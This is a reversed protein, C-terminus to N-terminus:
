NECNTKFRVASTQRLLEFGENLAVSHSPANDAWCHWVPTDGNMLCRRVSAAAVARALGRRRYEPATALGLAHAQGPGCIAPAVFVTISLSAIAQDTDDIVVYGFGTELFDNLSRYFSLIWGTLHELHGVGHHALM